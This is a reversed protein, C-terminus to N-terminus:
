EMWLVRIEGCLRGESREKAVYEAFPMRLNWEAEDPTSGRASLSPMEEIFAVFGGQAYRMVRGTYATTRRLILPFRTSNARGAASAPKNEAPVLMKCMTARVGKV